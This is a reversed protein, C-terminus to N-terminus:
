EAINSKPKVEVEREGVVPANLSNNLRKSANCPLEVEGFIQDVDLGPDIMLVSADDSAFPEKRVSEFFDEVGGKRQSAMELEKLDEEVTKFHLPKAQIVIKNEGAMLATRFDLPVVETDENDSNSSQSTIEDLNMDPLSAILKEHM